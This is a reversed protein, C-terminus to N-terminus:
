DQRKADLSFARLYAETPVTQIIHAVFQKPGAIEHVPRRIPAGEQSGIAWYIQRNRRSALWNLEEAKPRGVSDAAGWRAPLALLLGSGSKACPRRRKGRLLASHNPSNSTVRACRSKNTASTWM